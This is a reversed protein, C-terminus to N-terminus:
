AAGGPERQNRRAAVVFSRYMTSARDHLRVGWAVDTEGIIDFGAWALHRRLAAESSGREPGRQSHGGLWADIPTAHGSWDFPTSLLLVGGPALARAWSLLAAGPNALCDMVNLAVVGALSAGPLPLACADACWFDAGRSGRPVHWEVPEYVMGGRRVDARGKGTRLVQQALRLMGFGADLGLVPHGDMALELTSRGASCGVDAICGPPIEGALSRAAALCRMVGGPDCSTSTAAGRPFFEGYHDFAYTSLFLRALDPASGPELCDGLRSRSAASLDHRASIQHMSANAMGRPDAFLLPIGDLIPFECQCPGRPCVLAGELVHGDQEAEIAM